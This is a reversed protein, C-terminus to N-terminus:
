LMIDLNEAASKLQETSNKTEAIGIATQQASSNLINMAGVVQQIATAQQQATLSIKQSNLVINNVADVIISATTKGEQTASVTAVTATQIDRVLHNIQVASERSRDALKRIETAVVGFGKGQEGARVAEVAANIALMNTQDALSSVLVAITNIQQVQNNLNKIQDAIEAVKESLSSNYNNHWAEDESKQENGRVLLLVQRAGNLAAEAQEASKQSSAKLEDMTTTTENVSSAQSSAIREQEESAILIRRASESIDSVTNKLKGIIAQSILYGFPSAGVVTLFVLFGFIWLTQSFIHQAKEREKAANELQLDRLKRLYNSIPDIALYMANQGQNLQAINGAKLLIKEREIERDAKIFLGYLKQMISQEEETQETLSYRDLSQRIETQSRSILNLAEDTTIIGVRAKNTADVIVVAYHDLLANVERLTVVHDDFIKGVQRDMRYFSYLSYGSVTSLIVAPIIFFGLYLKNRLTNIKSM